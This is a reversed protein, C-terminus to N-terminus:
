IVISGIPTTTKEQAIKYSAITKLMSAYQSIKKQSINICTELYRMINNTIFMTDMYIAGMATDRIQYFEKGKADAISAYNNEFDEKKQLLAKKFDKLNDKLSYSRNYDSLIADIGGLDNISRNMGDYMLYDKADNIFTNEDYQEKEILSAVTKKSISDDYEYGVQGDEDTIKIYKPNGELSQHLIGEFLLDLDDILIDRATEYGKEIRFLYTYFVVDQMYKANERIKSENAKVFKRKDKFTEEFIRIGKDVLAIFKRWVSKCFNVFKKKLDEIKGETLTMELVFVPAEFIKLEECFSKCLDEVSSVLSATDLSEESIPRIGFSENVSKFIM